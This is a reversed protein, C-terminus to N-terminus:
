GGYAFRVEYQMQTLSCPWLCLTILGSKWAPEQAHTLHFREDVRRRLFYLTPCMCMLGGAISILSLDLKLQSQADHASVAEWYSHEALAKQRAKHEHEHEDDDNGNGHAFAFMKLSDKLVHSFSTDEHSADEHDMEAHQGHLLPDPVPPYM